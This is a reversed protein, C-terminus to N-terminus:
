CASQAAQFEIRPLALIVGVCIRISFLVSFSFRIRSLYHPQLYIVATKQV